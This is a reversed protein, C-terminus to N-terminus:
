IGASRMKDLDYKNIYADELEALYTSTLLSMYSVQLLVASEVSTKSVAKFLALEIDKKTLLSELTKIRTNM